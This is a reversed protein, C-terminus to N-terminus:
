LRYQQPGGENQAGIVPIDRPTKVLRLPQEGVIEEDVQEGVVGEPPNTSLAAVLLEDAQGATLCAFPARVGCSSRVRSVARQAGWGGLDIGFPTLSSSNEAVQSAQGLSSATTEVAASGLVGAPRMASRGQRLSTSSSQVAALRDAKSSAYRNPARTTAKRSQWAGPRGDRRGIGTAAM